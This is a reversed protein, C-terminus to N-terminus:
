AKGKTTRHFLYVEGMIRNDLQADSEGPRRLQYREVSEWFIHCPEGTDNDRVLVSLVPEGRMVCDHDAERMLADLEPNREIM